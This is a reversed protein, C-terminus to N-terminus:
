TETADIIGSLVEVIRADFQKGASEKLRQIAV